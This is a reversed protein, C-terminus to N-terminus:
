AGLRAYAEEWYPLDTRILGPRCHTPENTDFAATRQHETDNCIHGHLGCLGHTILAVVRSGLDVEHTLNSRKARTQFEITSYRCIRCNTIWYCQGSACFKLEDVLGRIRARDVYALQLVVSCETRVELYILRDALM